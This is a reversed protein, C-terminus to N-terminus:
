AGRQLEDIATQMAGLRRVLTRRTQELEGASPLGATKRAASKSRSREVLRLRRALSPHDAELEGLAQELAAIQDRLSSRRARAAEAPRARSPPKQREADVYLAAAVDRPDIGSRMAKRAADAAITSAASRKAADASVFTGSGQRSELLGERELRMYVARVTNANISLLEALDRLGPLRRGTILRGDHIRTKIAWALQVGIPVEARRDLALDSLTMPDGVPPVLVTGRGEASTGQAKGSDTEGAAIQM